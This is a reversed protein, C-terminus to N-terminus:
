QFTKESIGKNSMLVLQGRCKGCRYKQINIARQRLFLQGCKCCQYKKRQQNNTIPAYRLGNVKALLQKFDQDKHQYGKKALHLHYHCLEHKIIGIFVAMGHEELISPNFDLHHDSLHYRGGTTKLRTNFFTQHLFPKGFSEQSVKKVLNELAVNNM